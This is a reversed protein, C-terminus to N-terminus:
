EEIYSKNDKISRMFESPTMNYVQKFCKRFYQLDNFGVKYTIESIKLDSHKLLYAARKIRTNRILENTTCNLIAKVKRYLNSKSVGLKKCLHEVTFDPQAFNEEIIEIAKQIFIEDAESFKVFDEAAKNHKPQSNVKFASAKINKNINLFNQIRILLMDPDFPKTILADVGHLYAKEKAEDSSLVTTMIVIIHSLEPDSKIKDTLEFGDMQDMMGDTIILKPKKLKAIEFGEKGNSAIILEYTRSLLHQFLRQIDPNDEVILIIPKIAQVSSSTEQITEKNNDEEIIQYHKLEIVSEESLQFDTRAQKQIITSPFHTHGKPLTIIFSTGKGLMSEVQIQGGHQETIQKAIELGIGTGSPNSENKNSYFRDFIYPQDEASIGKGSDEIHIQIETDTVFTKIRVLGFKSTFKFANSILNVFVREMKDADFYIFCPDKPIDLEYKLQQEDAYGSFYLSIRRLFTHIDGESPQLNAKGAEIKSLELIQNILRYLQEANSLMMQFIRKQELKGEFRSIMSKLPSIILTVPTKLEHSINTYFRTKLGDMEELRDVDNKKQILSFNLAQKETLVNKRWLMLSGIIILYLAFALYTAYWPKQIHINLKVWEASPVGDNNKALIEFTYHGPNLNPYRVEKVNEQSIFDSEYGKLRYEFTTKSAQSFNSASIGIILDNDKHKFRLSNNNFYRDTQIDQEKGSVELDTIYVEPVQTNHSFAGAKFKNYGLTGGFYLSGDRGKYSSNKFFENSQLGDSQKFHHLKKTTPNLSFLGRNTGAWINGQGDENLSYINKTPLAIQNSISYTQLKEPDFCFLGRARTGFWIHGNRALHISSIMSGELETTESLERISKIDVLNLQDDITIRHIGNNSSGLWINGFRDEEMCNFKDSGLYKKRSAKFELNKLTNADIVEIGHQFNSIWLRHRSDLMIQPLKASHSASLNLDLIQFHDSGHALYRLGGGWTSVFLNDQDDLCIGTINNSGLNHGSKEHYFTIGNKHVRYLGKGDMGVWLTGDKCEGFASVLDLDYVEQGQILQLTPEFKQELPDIKGLGKFYYGLWLIGDRDTFMSWISNAALSSPLNNEQKYQDLQKTKNNYRFLGNNETGIWLTGKPNESLSLIESQQLQQVIPSNDEFPFITRFGQEDEILQVIGQNTGVWIIGAETKYIKKIIDSHLSNNAKHLQVIQGSRKKIIGLGQGHTGVLMNGKADAQIASIYDFGIASTNTSDAHFYRKFKQKEPDFVNLGARETGIWLIGNKDEFLCVVGDSSLSNPNEPDHAYNTFQQTSVDFISIGYGHTGIVLNGDQNTIMATINDSPLGDGKGGFQHYTTFQVGDFKNLGYLTGVWLFGHRDQTIASVTHQSLEAEIQHVHIGREQSFCPIVLIIMLFFLPYIKKM